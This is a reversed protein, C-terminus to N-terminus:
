FGVKSFDLKFRARFQVVETEFKPEGAVVEMDFVRYDNTITGVQGDCRVHLSHGLAPMDTHSRGMIGVLLAQQVKNVVTHINPNKDIIVQGIVHKYPVLEDRINLHAIHGVTEFSSPM